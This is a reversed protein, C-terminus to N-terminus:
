SLLYTAFAFCCADLHDIHTATYDIEYSNMLTKILQNSTMRTKIVTALSSVTSSTGFVKTKFSSKRNLSTQSYYTDIAKAISCNDKQLISHISVVDLDALIDNINFSNGSSAIKSLALTKLEDATGSSGKIENVLQALDGGWGGLDANITFSSNTFMNLTAMMHVFDAKEGETKELYSLTKLTSLDLKESMNKVFNDFTTLNTGALFNWQFTNYRTSRIYALAMSQASLANGYQKKYLEALYELESIKALTDLYANELANGSTKKQWIAYITTNTTVSLTDECTTGTGDQKTNWEVFTWGTKELQSPTLLTLTQGEISNTYKVAAQSTRGGTLSYTLKPHEIWKAYITADGTLKKASFDWLTTYTSDEFWGGFTFNDKEIAEPQGVVKGEEVEITYSTATDGTNFTVNFKTKNSCAFFLTPVIALM